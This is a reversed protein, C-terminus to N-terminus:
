FPQVDEGPHDGKQLFSPPEFSSAHLASISSMHKGLHANETTEFTHPFRNAQSEICQRGDSRLPQLFLNIKGPHSQIPIAKLIGEAVLIRMGITLYWHSM